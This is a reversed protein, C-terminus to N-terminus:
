QRHDKQEVEGGGAAPVQTLEVGERAGQELDGNGADSNSEGDLGNLEREKAKQREKEEEIDEKRALGDDKILVTILLCAGTFPVELIFVARSAAMYADMVKETQIHSLGSLDPISFTSFDIGM